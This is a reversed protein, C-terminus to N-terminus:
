FTFNNKLNHLFQLMKILLQQGEHMKREYADNASLCGQRVADASISAKEAVKYQYLLFNYLNKAIEVDDTSNLEGEVHTYTVKM